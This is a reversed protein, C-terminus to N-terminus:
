NTGNLQLQKKLHTKLQYYKGRQEPTLVKEDICELEELTIDTHLLEDLSKDLLLPYIISGVEGVLGQETSRGISNPEAVILTPTGVIINPIAVM